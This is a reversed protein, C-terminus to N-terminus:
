PAFCCQSGGSRTLSPEVLRPRNSENPNWPLLPTMRRRGTTAFGACRTWRAKAAGEAPSGQRVRFHERPNAIKGECLPHDPLELLLACPM